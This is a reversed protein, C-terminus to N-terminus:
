FSKNISEVLNKAQQYLDNSKGSYTKQQYKVGLLNVFAPLKKQLHDFFHMIEKGKLWYDTSYTDYVQRKIFSLESVYLKRFLIKM